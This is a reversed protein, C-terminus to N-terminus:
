RLDDVLAYHTFVQFWEFEFMGGFFSASVKNEETDLEACFCGEAESPPHNENRRSLVWCLLNSCGTPRPACISFVFPM